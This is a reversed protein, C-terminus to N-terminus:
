RFRKALWEVVRPKGFVAGYLTPSGGKSEYVLEYRGGAEEVLVQTAALDWRKIGFDAMAGVAGEAALTHGLCDAYGRVLPHSRMLRDFAAARGCEAFRPRDGTAIVERELPEGRSLDAIRVRRGNKFTGLGAGASYVLDLAPHDIVGVLPRGRRHLGLITGFFPIGHTFSLTGDIPDLLWQYESAPESEGFEEGVIGHGPFRKRIARRLAREAELDADTVLSDDPKVRKAYGRELRGLVIRRAGRSFDLAAEYFERIRSAGMGLLSELM